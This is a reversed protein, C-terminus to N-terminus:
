LKKIGNIIYLLRRKWMGCPWNGFLRSPVAWGPQYIRTDLILSTTHDYRNNTPSSALIISLRYRSYKLGLYSSKDDQKFQSLPQCPKCPIGRANTHISTHMCAATAEHEHEHEHKHEHRKAFRCQLVNVALMSTLYLSLPAYPLYVIHLFLIGNIIM